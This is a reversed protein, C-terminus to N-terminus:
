SRGELGPASWASSARWLAPPTGSTRADAPSRPFPFGLPILCNRLLSVVTFRFTWDSLSPVNLRAARRGRLVGYKCTFSRRGRRLGCRLELLTVHTVVAASLTHRTAPMLPLLVGGFIVRHNKDGWASASDREEDRFGLVRWLHQLLLNLFFRWFGMDEGQGVETRRSVLLFM